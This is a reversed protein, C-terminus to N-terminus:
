INRYFAETAARVSGYKDLLDTATDEDAGTTEMIMRIGRKVLKANSLQMDVMKNGKVRGLKIMVATSIMNLVLKQATGAKMRTSGTVFEPGVVVEIPIEVERSLPTDANCTICGTLLGAAKASKVGGIVYPTTGSAAIGIVTDEAGINYAELDKWAQTADDEANEVAKRIAQDGGAILGIVWDHPVGYTPPCESADLIGLRGSTGAGIYFLRGGRQMRSVIGLVLSEISGLTKEVADAVKKDEENINKLLTSVEMKELNDYHSSSETTNM